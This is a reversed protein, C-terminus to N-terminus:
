WAMRDVSRVSKMCIWNSRENVKWFQFSNPLNRTLGSRIEGLLCEARLMHAQRGGVTDYYVLEAANQPSQLTREPICIWTHIAYVSMSVFWYQRPTLSIWRYTHMDKKRYTHKHITWPYFESTFHRQKNAQSSSLGNSSRRLTLGVLADSWNARRDSRKKGRNEKNAIDLLNLTFITETTSFFFMTLAIMFPYALVPASIWDIRLLQNWIIKPRPKM